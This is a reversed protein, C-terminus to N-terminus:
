GDHDFLHSSFLYQDDVDYLLCCFILNAGRAAAAIAAEGTGDMCALLKPDNGVQPPKAQPPCNPKAADSGSTRSKGLRRHSIGRAVASGSSTAESESPDVMISSLKPDSGEQPPLSGNM